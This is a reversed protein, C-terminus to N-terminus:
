HLEFWYFELSERGELDMKWLKWFCRTVVSFAPMEILLLLELFSGVTCRACRM